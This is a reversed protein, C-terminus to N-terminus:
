AKSVEPVDSLRESPRGDFHKRKPLGEPQASAPSDAPRQSQLPTSQDRFASAQVTNFSQQPPSSLAVPRRKHKSNTICISDLKAPRAIFDLLLM